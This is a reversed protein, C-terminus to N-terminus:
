PAQTGLMCVMLWTGTPATRTLSHAASFTSFDSGYSDIYSRDQVNFNKVNGAGMFEYGVLANAGAWLQTRKFLGGSVSSNAYAITGSGIAFAEQPGYITGTTTAAESPVEPATATFGTATVNTLQWYANYVPDSSGTIWVWQNPYGLIPTPTICTLVRSSISCSTIATALTTYPSLIVAVHDAYPADESAQVEQLTGGSSTSNAGCQSYTLTTASSTYWLPFTGDFSSDAVGAVTFNRGSALGHATSTTVTVLCSSSVRNVSSINVPTAATYRAVDWWVANGLSFTGSNIEANVIGDGHGGIFHFANGGPVGNWYFSCVGGSGYTANPGVLEVGSTAGLGVMTVTNDLIYSGGGCSVEGGSGGINTAAQFAANFAPSSTSTRTPDAGWWEPYLETVFRSNAFSVSGSSSFIRYRGATLNGAISLTAGSSISFSSGQEMKFNVNSPTSHNAAVRPTGTVDLTGGTPVLAEAQQITGSQIGIVGSSGPPGERYDAVYCHSCLVPMTGAAWAALSPDIVLICPVAPNAGCAAMANAVKAGVTAGPFQKVYITNDTQCWAKPAAFFIAVFLSIRWMM